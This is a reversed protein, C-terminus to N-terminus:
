QENSLSFEEVVRKSVSTLTQRDMYNVVTALLMMVVVWWKWPPVTSKSPSAPPMM